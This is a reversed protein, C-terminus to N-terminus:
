SYYVDMRIALMLASDRPISDETKYMSYTTWIGINCPYFSAAQIFLNYPLSLYVASCTCPRFGINKLDHTTSSVFDSLIRLIIRKRGAM